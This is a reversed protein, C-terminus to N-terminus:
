ELAGAADARKILDEAQAVLPADIMEGDVAFVGRGAAEAEEKKKLVERAWEIREQNPTFAKNIVSVQAPHIAMKGDFGLDIARETDAALGETDEFDTYLTDVADVEQSSAALVVHERAYLIETGEASRNLGVDASLDEAGLLLADTAAAAAVEQAALVGAATELLALVPVVEAHDAMAEAVAEVDQRGAVKPLMVSDIESLVSSLRDLDDRGGADLPNLRVCLECDPDLSSVVEAVCDRATSKASPAVADELDFVVVDAGSDPAKRLLDSQDGPSFLVTRRVM